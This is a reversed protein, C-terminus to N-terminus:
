KVILYFNEMKLLLESNQCGHCNNGSEIRISVLAKEAVDKKIEGNGKNKHPSFFPPPFTTKTKSRKSITTKEDDASCTCRRM